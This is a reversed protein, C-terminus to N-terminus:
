KKDNEKKDEVKKNDTKKDKESEPKAILKKDDVKDELKAGLFGALLAQLDLGTSSKVGSLISFRRRM